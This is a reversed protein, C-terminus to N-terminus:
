DYLASLIFWCKTYVNLNIVQVLINSTQHFTITDPLLSHIILIFQLKHKYGMMQMFSGHFRVM